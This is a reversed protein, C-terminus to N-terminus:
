NDEPEYWGDIESRPDFKAPNVFEGNHYKADLNAVVTKGVKIFNAVNITNSINTNMNDEFHELMDMNEQVYQYRRVRPFTFATNLLAWSHVKPTPKGLEGAITRANNYNKIDFHRSFQDM